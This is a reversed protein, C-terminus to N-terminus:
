RHDYDEPDFDADYYGRNFVGPSKYAKARRKYSDRAKPAATGPGYRSSGLAMASVFTHLRHSGKVDILKLCYVGSSHKPIERPNVFDLDRYDLYGQRNEGHSVGQLRYGSPIFRRFDLM